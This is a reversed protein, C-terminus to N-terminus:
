GPAKGMMEFPKKVEVQAPILDEFIGRLKELIVEEGIRKYEM